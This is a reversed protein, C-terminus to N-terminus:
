TLLLFGLQMLEPSIELAGFFIVVERLLDLRVLGSGHAVHHLHRCILEHVHIPVTQLHRVLVVRLRYLEHAEVKLALREEEVLDAFHDTGHDLHVMPLEARAENLVRM